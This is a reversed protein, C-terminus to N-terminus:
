RSDRRCIVLRRVAPRGEESRHIFYIGPTLSLGQTPELQSVAGRMVLRGAVNYVSVRKGAESERIVSSLKRGASPVPRARQWTADFYLGLPGTANYRCFVVGPGRPQHTGSYVLRPRGSEYLPNARPGNVQIPESWFGIDGFRACRWYVVTADDPRRGGYNYCIDVFDNPDNRDVALDAFWEDAFSDGFPQGTAWNEGGDWSFSYELDLMETDRRAITYFVLVVSSTQPLTESQVVVPDWCRESSNNMVKHRGWHAPAGYHRSSEYHIQRGTLAYRWVCHITSGTGFSIHPDYANWWDQGAEWSLGYDLSRTFFGTRGIRQENVYLCYLYYASDRDITVSFDDITDPGTNVPVADWDSIDPRIRVEWLDGNGLEALYFLFIFNSDANGILLELKRVRSGVALQLRGAWNEGRDSSSYLRVTSDPYGAAVWILGDPGSAAGFATIPLTDIAIDEGWAAVVPPKGAAEWPSQGFHAQVGTRFRSMERDLEKALGFEGAALAAEFQRNLEALEPELASVPVPGTLDATRESSGVGSLLLLLATLNVLPM